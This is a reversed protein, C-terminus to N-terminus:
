KLPQLLREEFGRISFGVLEIFELRRDPGNLLRDATKKGERESRSACSGCIRMETLRSRQGLGRRGESPTGMLWLSCAAFLAGRRRRANAGAPSPKRVTSLTALGCM